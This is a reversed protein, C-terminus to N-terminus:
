CDTVFVKTENNLIILASRLLCSVLVFWFSVSLSYDLRMAPGAQQITDKFNEACSMQIGSFRTAEESFIICRGWIGAAFM